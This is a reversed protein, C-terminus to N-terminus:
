LLCELKKVALKGAAASGIFYERDELFSKGMKSLYETRNLLVRNIDEYDVYYINHLSEIRNETIQKNIRSIHEQNELLPIAINAKTCCIDKLVTISHHSIGYHRDRKDLFSIRPIQIVYGKLKNAADIINGQEIGSFGYKTDTGIIGPGMCVIVVDAKIIEKAAILATYINICEFDGGFANGYTITYEVIKDQKLRRIIDSLYIPLAGGDTMIYCIKSSPNQSKIYISVPAVMSHLTGVIVPMGDLSDFENFVKHYQSEQAEAAMCNIQFPTYRLKMIHGVNINDVIPKSLNAIVFHYGGTGLRFEVATTNVLILDGLSINGTMNNYNICSQKENDILAALKTVNNDSFYIDTVVGQATKIM